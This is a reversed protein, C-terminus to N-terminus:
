YFLRIKVHQYLNVYILLQDFTKHKAQDSIPTALRTVPSKFESCRLFSYISHVSKKHAQAFEPFSFTIEIIKPHIHDFNPTAMLNM